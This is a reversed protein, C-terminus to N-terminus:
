PSCVRLSMLVLIVAAIAVGTLVRRRTWRVGHRLPENMRRDLEATVRRIDIALAAATQYRAAPEKALLKMVIDDLDPPLDPNV